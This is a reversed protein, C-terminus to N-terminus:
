EGKKVAKKRPARKVAKDKPPEEIEKEVVPPEESFCGPADAFLYTALDPEVEIEAGAQYSLERNKYDSLVYLKM